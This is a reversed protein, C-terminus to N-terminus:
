KNKQCFVLVVYFFIVYVFLLKVQFVFVEERDVDSFPFVFFFCVCSTSFWTLFTRSFLFNTIHIHREHVDKGSDDNFVFIVVFLYLKAPLATM